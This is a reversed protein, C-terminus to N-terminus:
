RDIVSGQRTLKWVWQPLSPIMQGIKLAISAINPRIMLHHLAQAIMFSKRYRQRWAKQFAAADADLYYDAAMYGSTIAIALGEGCLPPISGAADGIFFVRAWSPNKRIGFEPIQGILWQPFIMKGLSFNNMLHSIFLEPTPTVMSKQVVCALNMTNQDLRSIGLYGGPFTHMELKKEYPADNQFHAKFGFYQPELASSKQSPMKGTGVFVSHAQIVKGNSLTLTYHESKKQPIEWGIVQTDTMVKMSLQKAREFLVGDLVFRSCSGSREPLRLSLKQSGNSFSCSDISPCIAMGWDKLIPLCEYSLFEGCIRHAPFHSADILLPKVGRDVLRNAASLGAVGGGIIVCDEIM